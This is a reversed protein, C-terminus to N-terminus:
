SKVGNSAVKLIEAGLRRYAVERSAAWRQCDPFTDDVIDLIAPDKVESALRSIRGVAQDIDSLPTGYILGRLSPADVARRMVGYTALIVKANELMAKREHKKTSGIFVGIESPLFQYRNILVGRIYELQEKRDSLVLTRRDSDVFTKVYGAIMNSRNKDEALMSIIIGRRQNRDKTSHLYPHFSSGEYSKMFVRSTADLGGEAKVLTEKLHWNIVNTAGDKRDITASMGIRIKAKFLGMVTSFYETALTDCEDFAVVGFYDLFEQPYKDKALSQLMGVVIKKGEYECKNQQAIGIDERKLDTHKLLCDNIWQDVIYNQPVVILATKGIHNILNTTMFSKGTGTKSDLLIGTAGSDYASRLQDVVAVQRERPQNVMNFHIDQGEVRDDVITDALAGIDQYHRPIGFYEVGNLEMEKWVPIPEKQFRPQVTCRTKLVSLPVTLESKPVFWHTSHIVHSFM